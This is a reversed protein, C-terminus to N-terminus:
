IILSKKCTNKNLSFSGKTVTLIRFASPTRLAPWQDSHLVPRDRQGRRFAEPWSTFESAIIGGWTKEVTNGEFESYLSSRDYVDPHYGDRRPQSASASSRFWRCM